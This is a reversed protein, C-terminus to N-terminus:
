VDSHKSILEAGLLEIYDKKWDAVRDKRRKRTMFQKVFGDVHWKIQQAIILKEASLEDNFVREFSGGDETSLFIQSVSKKALEPQRFYTAVYAQAGEKLKIIRGELSYGIRQEIKQKEADTLQEVERERRELYWGRSALALALQVVQPHNSRLFSSELRNQNNLNVAVNSAFDKDGQSTIVRVPVLVDSKLQKQKFATHLVRITQGGNVVQARKVTLKGVFQDWGATECLFTIGNNYHLFNQSEEHTCTQRIGANTAKDGQYVRINQQLLQEGFRGYLQALIEGATHFLYCDHDSSRVQYPPQKSIEFVIPTEVTPLSKQYFADQLFPLDELKWTFFDDSPGGLNDVFATLKERAEKSLGTGSTVLHLRYGTPVIQYIDEILGSLQENAVGQYKKALILNLGSLVKDVDGEPFANDLDTPNKFQYFHVLNDPDIWVSDVGLDNGDDCVIEEVQM